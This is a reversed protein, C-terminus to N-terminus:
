PQAVGYMVKTTWDGDYNWCQLLWKYGTYPAIGYPSNLPDGFNFRAFTFSTPFYMGSDWLLTPQFSQYYNSNPHQPDGVPNGTFGFSQM